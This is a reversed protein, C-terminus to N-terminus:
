LLQVVSQMGSWYSLQSQQRRAEMMLPLAISENATQGPLKLQRIFKFIRKNFEKPKDMNMIHGAGKISVLKADPIKKAMIDAVNKCLALDYEATVILTPIRIENLKEIAMPFLRLQIESNLTEAELGFIAFM